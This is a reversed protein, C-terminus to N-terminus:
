GDGSVRNLGVIAVNAHAIFVTQVLEFFSSKGDVELALGNRPRFCRAIPSGRVTSVAFGVSGRKGLFASTGLVVSRRAGRTSAIPSSYVLANKSDILILERYRFV